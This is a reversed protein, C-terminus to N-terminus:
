RSPVGGVSSSCWCAASLIAPTSARIKPRVVYSSISNQRSSAARGSAPVKARVMSAARLYTTDLVSSWRSQFASSTRGSSSSAVARHFADSVAIPIRGRAPLAALTRQEDGAM